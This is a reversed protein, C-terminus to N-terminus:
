GRAAVRRGLKNGGRAVEAVGDEEHGDDAAAVRARAVAPRRAAGGSAGQNMV